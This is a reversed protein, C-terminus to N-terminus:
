LTDLVPLLKQVTQKISRTNRYYYTYSTGVDVHGAQMTMLIPDVHADILKSIYTKRLKHVSKGNVRDTGEAKQGIGLKGCLRPLKKTWANANIRKGNHMFLFEGDPNLSKILALIKIVEDSFVVIRWGTAGKTSERVDIITHGDDDQYKIETRSVTLIHQQVDFDTWKLSALEGVRLGTHIVLLLGLLVIDDTHCYIYDKLLQIEDDLFVDEGPVAHRKGRKHSRIDYDKKVNYISVSSYGMEKAYQMIGTMLIMFNARAKPTIKKDASFRRIFDVIDFETLNKVKRKAFDTPLIYRKFDNTYKNATQREFDDYLHLRRDIWRYFIEEVTPNDENERYYEVIVDELDKRNKRKVIRRKEKKTHDPLTTTWLRTTENFWISHHKNHENLYKERQSMEYKTRLEDENIMGTELGYKM